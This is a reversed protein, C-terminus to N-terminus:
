GRCIISEYKIDNRKEYDQLASSSIIRCVNLTLLGSLRRLPDAPGLEAGSGRPFLILM